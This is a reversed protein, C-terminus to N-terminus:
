ASHVDNGITLIPKGNFGIIDHGVAAPPDGSLSNVGTTSVSSNSNTPIDSMSINAPNDRVSNMKSLQPVAPPISTNLQQSAIFDRINDPVEGVTDSMLATSEWKRYVFEVQVEHIGRADTSLPMNTMTVPFANKLNVSYVTELAQNLQHITITEVTYESPYAVCGGDSVVVKQLWDEFFKRVLMDQDCVFVMAAKGYGKGVVVQRDLGDDNITGIQLVMEPLQAQKCYLNVTEVDYRPVNMFAPPTLEIYFHSSRALGTDKVRAIFQGLKTTPQSKTPPKPLKTAM